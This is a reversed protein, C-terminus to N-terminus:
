VQIKARRLPPVRVEELKIGSPLGTEGTEAVMEVTEMFVGPHKTAVAVKDVKSPSGRRGSAGPPADKEGSSM